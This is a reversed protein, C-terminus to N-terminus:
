QIHRSQMNVRRELAEFEEYLEFFYINNTEEETAPELTATM